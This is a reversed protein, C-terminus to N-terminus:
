LHATINFGFLPMNTPGAAGGTICSTFSVNATNSVFFSYEHTHTNLRFGALASPGEGTRYGAIPLIMEGFLQWHEDLAIKMTIPVATTFRDPRKQDAPLSDYEDPFPKNDPGIGYTKEYGSLGAHVIGTGLRLRDAFLNREVIVGLDLSVDSATQNRLYLTGGAIIAVDAIGSMNGHMQDLVHWRFLLDYYDFQTVNTSATILNLDHGNQRQLTVDVDNVIGYGLEIGIKVNDDLGLLNSKLNEYYAEQAVHVIRYNFTGAPITNASPLFANFVSRRQIETWPELHANAKLLPDEEDEEEPKVARATVPEAAHTPAPAAQPAPVPTPPKVAVPAAVPAAVVAAPTKAVPAVTGELERKRQAYWRSLEKIRLRQEASLGTVRPDDVGLPLAKWGKQNLYLYAWLRNTGEAMRERIIVVGCDDAAREDLVTFDYMGSTLKRAMATVIGKAVTRGGEGAIDAMVTSADPQHGLKLQDHLNTLAAGPGDREVAAAALLLTCSLALPRLATRINQTLSIM